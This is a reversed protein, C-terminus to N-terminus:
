LKKFEEEKAAASAELARIKESVERVQAFDGHTAPDSLRAALTEIERKLATIEEVLKGAKREKKEQEKKRRREERWVQSEEETPKRTTEQKKRPADPAPLGAAEAALQEQRSRFYEYNGPYMTIKGGEQVHAVCDALSNIFYLDHSIFCMTGEFEKLAGILAEVSPIDLHTTPEDMLLVNPPDLLLKVLALRSKEGGSLVTTKKFVNDGPFLFTGLVTRTFLEPLMRDNDMAEQLVTKRPDFAGERHQSFYGTKVNLGLVREGSDPEIAGALMKLLTSKGAGNHGVLAIKQNRQLEFNLNDYVKLPERGPLAYSKGINKLELAKSAIRAPQPFHIKVTKTSVPLEIRELKDLRKIMSQVRSATSYRVRNRAIFDEMDAIEEQQQNYASMLKEKESERQSLYHAYDGHYAKLKKEQVAVIVGCVTDIFARDHSIIFVAGPYYALYDQLWFLSDLDLHNTPEDLLLLDPKRILLRAMAVRMAWGGSLTNVIRDFDSVKFGLGMLISKGEAELRSDFADLGELTEELVTRDSVPANEQPLYGAVVGKKFQLEGEDPEEERLMMKFLTSKGAGNPGVLAFREGDNIQLSADEFLSQSGFSKHINRITIM